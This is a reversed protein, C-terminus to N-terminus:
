AKNQTFHDFVIDWAEVLESNPNIKREKKILTLNLMNLARQITKLTKKTLQGNEPYFIKEQRGSEWTPCEREYCDLGVSAYIFNNYDKEIKDKLIKWDNVKREYNEAVKFVLFPEGM